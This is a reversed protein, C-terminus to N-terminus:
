NLDAECPDPLCMCSGPSPIRIDHVRGHYHRARLRRTSKKELLGFACCASPALGAQKLWLPIRTTEFVTPPTRACPSTRAGGAGNAVLRAARFCACLEQVYETRFLAQIPLQVTSEHTAALTACDISSFAPEFRPSIYQVFASEYPLYTCLFPPFLTPMPVPSPLPPLIRSLYGTVLSLTRTL